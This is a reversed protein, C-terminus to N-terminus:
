PVGASEINLMEEDEFLNESFEDLGDPVYGSELMFLQEEEWDQQQLVAGMHKFNEEVPMPVGLEQGKASKRRLQKAVEIRRRDLKNENRTEAKEALIRLRKKESRVRNVPVAVEGTKFEKKVDYLYEDEADGTWKYNPHKPYDYKKGFFPKLGRIFVICDSTDMESIETATMLERGIIQKSRSSGGGKGGFSRSDTQTVITEKGLKESVYKLTTQEQGGLFIFTDCNGTISEWSDKYMTKLQALNQIIITCSIEYKRM